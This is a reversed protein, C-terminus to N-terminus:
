QERPHALCQQKHKVHKCGETEGVVAVAQHSM